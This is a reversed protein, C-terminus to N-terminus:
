GTKIGSASRIYLYECAAVVVYYLTRMKKRACCRMIKNELLCSGLDDQYGLAASPLLLLVNGFVKLM